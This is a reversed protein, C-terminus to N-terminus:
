SKPEITTGKNNRCVKIYYYWPAFSKLRPVVKNVRECLEMYDAHDDTTYDVTSDTGELASKARSHPFTRRHYSIFAQSADRGSFAQLCFEHCKKLAKDEGSM